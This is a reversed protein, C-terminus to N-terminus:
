EHAQLRVAPLPKKDLIERRVRLKQRLLLMLPGWTGGFRRLERGGAAVVRLLPDGQERSENRARERTEGVGPKRARKGDVTQNGTPRVLRTEAKRGM